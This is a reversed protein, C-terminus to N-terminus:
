AGVPGCEDTWGAVTPGTWGLMGGCVHRVNRYGRRQWSAAAEASRAGSRCVLVVPATAGLRNLHAELDESPVWRAEPIRDRVYEEWTRVDLLVVERRELLRALTEADIEWPETPRAFPFERGIRVLTSNDCEAEGVAIAFPQPDGWDYALIPDPLEADARLLLDDLIQEVRTPESAENM